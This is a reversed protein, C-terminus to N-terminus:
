GQGVAAVRQGLEQSLAAAETMLLGGFRAVDAEDLRVGPGFICISGAVKDSGDFFPAAVAVAGNILEDRSMAYGLTRVGALVAPYGKVDMDIGAAYTALSEPSLPMNALICRGSAGLVLRERYGVGRKFSLPQASPLEEVCLRYVGEPVFLAVTEGTADWLRSLMPEAVTHISLSARWVHALRAVSSGLRFRQPDGSSVLFHNQELTALLRYLTPRSLKVRKLLEAVTLGEDGPQWASLIELARDVARVSDLGKENEM